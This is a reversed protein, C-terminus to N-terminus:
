GTKNGEDIDEWAKPMPMWARVKWYARAGTLLWRKTGAIYKVATVLKRPSSDECTCIYTGNGEPLGKEVATWKLENM